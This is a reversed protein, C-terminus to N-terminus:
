RFAAAYFIYPFKDPSKTRRKELRDMVIKLGPDITMHACRRLPQETQRGRGTAGNRQRTARVM